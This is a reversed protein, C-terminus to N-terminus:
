CDSPNAVAHAAHFAAHRLQPTLPKPPEGPASSVARLAREFGPASFVFFNSLTDSGVNTVGICTGQPIFVTAGASATMFEHGLQVRATGRTIVIIEDEQLHRHVGIADGPPLDSSGLVMRRSGTNIPDVKIFLPATGGRLFRREGGDAPIVAARPPMPNMASASSAGVPHCGLAFALPLVAHCARKM